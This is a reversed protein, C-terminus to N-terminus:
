QCAGDLFRSSPFPFFDIEALLKKILDSSKNHVANLQM